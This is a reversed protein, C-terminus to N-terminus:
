PEPWRGLSRRMTVPRFASWVRGRSSGKCAMCNKPPGAAWTLPWRGACRGYRLSRSQGSSVAPSRQKHCAPPVAPSFSSARVQRRRSWITWLTLDTGPTVWRRPALARLARPLRHSVGVRARRRLPPRTVARGAAQGVTTRKQAITERSMAVM